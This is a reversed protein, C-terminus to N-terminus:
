ACYQAEKKEQKLKPLIHQRYCTGYKSFSVPYVELEALTRSLWLPCAGPLKLELLVRDGTLKTQM